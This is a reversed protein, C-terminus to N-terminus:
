VVFEVRLGLAHSAATTAATHVAIVIDIFGGPDVAVGNYTISLASWLETLKEAQTWAGTADVGQFTAQFALAAAFCNASILTGQLSVPTGDVPSDSWYAGVDLALGTSTDLAADANLTIKKIKANTPVRVMKYTSTTLILGATTPIVYDDYSKQYGQAGQGTTPTTPFNPLDLSVISTSKLTDAAM